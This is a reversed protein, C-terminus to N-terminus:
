HVATSDARAVQSKPRFFVKALGTIGLKQAAAKSLDLVRNKKYPGRDNVVVDVTQGNSPNTVELKTGFPLTRHACTMENQDFTDGSATKRGHFKGGYFSAIGKFVKNIKRDVRLANGFRNKWSKKEAPENSDTDAYAPHNALLAFLCAAALALSEIKKM